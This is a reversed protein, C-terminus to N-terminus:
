KKRESEAHSASGNLQGMIEVTRTSRQRTRAVTESFDVFSFRAVWFDIKEKIKYKMYSISLIYSSIIRLFSFIFCMDPCDLALIWSVVSGHYSKESFFVDVFFAWLGM